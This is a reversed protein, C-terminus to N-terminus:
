KEATIIYYGFDKMHLGCILSYFSAKLNNWSQPKVRKGSYLTKLIFFPIAFPVHFVSPAVNFSVDDVTVKKFGINLLNQKVTDIMGLGDLSWGKCLQKYGYASGLCLTSADKKLFADTIVLKKGPKLIRYAERLTEKNHGAHCFSEMAIAGDISNSAMSTEKYNEKLIVGNLNKLLKNGESVQFDSLTVGIMNLLNNKKLFHRMTGGIGCGLDAILQPKNPLKLRKYVEDNMANLMDDRKLPNTKGWKFYGFHMNMDKSWFSYDETAEDYFTKIDGELANDKKIQTNLILTEM